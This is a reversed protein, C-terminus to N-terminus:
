SELIVVYTDVNPRVVGKFGANILERQHYFANTEFAGKREEVDSALKSYSLLPSGYKM